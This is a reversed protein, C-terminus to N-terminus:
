ENNNGIKKMREEVRAMQARIHSMSLAAVSPKTEKKTDMSLHVALHHPVQTM